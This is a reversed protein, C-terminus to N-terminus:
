PSTALRGFKVQNDYARQVSQLPHIEHSAFFQCYTRESIASVAAGNDLEMSLEQNEVKVALFMAKNGNPEVIEERIVYMPNHFLNGEPSSDAVFHSKSTYNKNREDADAIKKKLKDSNSVNEQQKKESFVYNLHGKRHCTRCTHDKFRNCFKHNSRGCCSRKKQKKEPEKKGM